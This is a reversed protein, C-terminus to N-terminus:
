ELITIEVRRNRAKGESTDNSAVPKLGGSGKCIFQEPKIGLASLKKAIAEAREYSLKMEGEPNGVSATHGEILFKSNEAQKLIEAIDSLRENEGELLRSSDAEFRLDEIILKIGGETTEYKLNNYKETSNESVMVTKDASNEKEQAIRKLAPIIKDHNVSPPYETFLTITGKYQYYNGDTYFFTEDVSDRIVLATGNKKSVYMTASHAGTASELEYDGDWDIINLKGIIGYRTAWKATILYVEEDHYIEDGVYTYQIQLPLRTIVGKDLPDIIRVASATWSDGTKIKQTTFSPFSRFSPYGNDEIMTLNGENDITFSAPIAKHIGDKVLQQNHKTDKNVYFNGEYIRKNNKLTPIIFSSIERSELGVYKGNKYLRLDTRETLIYNHEGSYSIQSFQDNLDGPLHNIAGQSFFSHILINFAIFILLKRKM